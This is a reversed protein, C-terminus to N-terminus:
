MFDPDYSYWAVGLYTSSTVTGYKKIKLTYNAFPTAQFDCAEWSSDYTTSDCVLNGAADYILLDLDADLADATCSNGSSTCTPSSDWAIAARVRVNSSFFGNGPQINYVASSVSGSPFDSTFHLTRGDRGAYAAASGASRGHTPNAIDAAFMGNLLGVGDKIDGLPLSTFGAGDVNRLSTALIAARKMEPWTDFRHDRAGMLAVTGTAMPASGSTGTAVLGVSDLSVAPAVAYPLERDSHDSTPNRFSSCDYITDNTVNTDGQDNSGGMVLSNHGRNVVTDEGANCGWNGAAPVFLPYPSLKTLYDFQMDTGSIGGPHGSTFTHSFNVTRAGRNACWAAMSPQNGTYGPWNGIYISADPAVDLAGTNRIIGTVWRSHWSTGGTPTALETLTLQSVDDPRGGEIVCVSQGTGTSMTQAASSRISDWWATTLPQGPWDDSGISLAEPMRALARVESAPVVARILPDSGDGELLTHGGRELAQILPGTAARSASRAHEAFRAALAPDAILAEKAPYELTVKAWIWLNVMTDGPLSDIVDALEPTLAGHLKRYLGREAEFLRKEETVSGDRLMTVVGGEGDRDLLKASCAKVGTLPLSLRVPTMVTCDPCGGAAAMEKPDPCARLEQEAAGTEESETDTDAAPECAAFLGASSIFLTCGLASRALLSRSTVFTSFTKM